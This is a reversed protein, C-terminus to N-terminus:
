GGRVSVEQRLGLIEAPTLSLATAAENFFAIEMESVRGDVNIVEALAQITEVKDENRMKSSATALVSRLSRNEFSESKATIRIENLDYKIGLHNLLVEQVKEVEVQKINTDAATARALTYLMIEKALEDQEEETPKSEFLKAVSSLTGLPM